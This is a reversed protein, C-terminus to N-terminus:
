NKFLLDDYLERHKKSLVKPNFHKNLVKYNNHGMKKRIKVNKM